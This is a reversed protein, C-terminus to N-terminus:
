RERAGPEPAYLKLGKAEESFWVAVPRGDARLALDIWPDDATTKELLLRRAQAIEGQPIELLYLGPVRGEREIPDRGLAWLTGDAARRIATPGRAPGVRVRDVLPGPARPDFTGVLLSGDDIRVAAVDLKGDARPMLASSTGDFGPRPQERASAVTFLPSGTPRVALRLHGMVVQFDCYSAVATGDDLLVLSNLLTPSQGSRSDVDVKEWHGLGAGGFAPVGAPRRAYRVRDGKVGYFLHPRGQKDVVLASGAGAEDGFAIEEGVWGASLPRAAAAPAPAGDVDAGAAKMSAVDAPRHAIRLTHDGQHFFSIVPAGGPALALRVFAGAAGKVEVPEPEGLDTGEPSSVAYMVDGVDADTWAVHIRDHADIEVDPYWGVGRRAEGAAIREPPPAAILRIAQAEVETTPLQVERKCGGAVVVLAFGAGLAPHLLRRGAPFPTKKVRV